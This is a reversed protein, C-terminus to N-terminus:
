SPEQISCAKPMGAPMAHASIPELHRPQGASAPAHMSASLTSAVSSRTDGAAYDAIIQATWLRIESACFAHFIQMKYAFHRMHTLALTTMIIYATLLVERQCIWQVALVSM